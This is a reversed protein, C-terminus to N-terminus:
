VFFGQKPTQKTKNRFPLRWPMKRSGGKRQLNYISSISLSHHLVAALRSPSLPAPKITVPLAPGKGTEGTFISGDKLRSPWYTHRTRSTHPLPRGYHCSAPLEDPLELFHSFSFFFFFFQARFTWRPKSFYINSTTAPQKTILDTVLTWKWLLGIGSTIMAYHVMGKYIKRKGPDFYRGSNEEWNLSNLHWM